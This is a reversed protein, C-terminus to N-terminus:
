HKTPRRRAARAARRSRRNGPEVSMLKDLKDESVGGNRAVCACVVPITQSGAEEHRVVGTGECRPCDDSALSLNVDSALRVRLPRADVVVGSSCAERNARMQEFLELAAADKSKEGSM